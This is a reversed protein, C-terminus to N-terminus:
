PRHDRYKVNLATLWLGVGLASAAAVLLFLPLLWVGVGPTMRYWVMMGAAIVLTVALDVLGAIVRSLPLILRPFYVNTVLNASGVLSDSTDAVCRAFYNWPLLGCFAFLPYPVGDSPLRALRGFIVTFILTTIAPQLIVWGVGILSQRYRLSVDRWALLLLLERYGWLERLSFGLPGRAATIVIRPRPAAASSAPNGGPDRSDVVIGDLGRDSAM